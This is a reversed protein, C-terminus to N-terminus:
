NNGAKKTACHPSTCWKSLYHEDTARRWVQLHKM